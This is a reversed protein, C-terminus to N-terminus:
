SVVGTMASTEVVGTMASTEVVTTGSAGAAELVIAGSTAEDTQAGREVSADAGFAEDGLANPPGCRTAEM